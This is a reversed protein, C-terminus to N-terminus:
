ENFNDNFLDDCHYHHHHKRQIPKKDQEPTDASRMRSILELKLQQMDSAQKEAMARDFYLVGDVWTKLAKAYISLPNDSWLVLDAQKGTEVSGTYAEVKLMKAPNLTVLKWAEEESLGGYRIAKAAEQNLRRAMEADDSNFGTTVGMRTLLAGNYPIADNVEWKYAWWDSFSSANAGHAKLKDALKYGELIHTFTNVKFGMSDAVKMLMNIESQVYSHCTINRKGDLIEAIAELEIDTRFAPNKAKKDVSYKKAREFADYFVQEVGMRSQPFRSTYKEGWNSQKVNEGLAFKIHGPSEKFKMQQGTMGWRLKIVGNQGGIPNASGHLLHSTTVGGSLQRFINVDTADVVDGIRVEATNNQTGENVGGMIAIHSHEDIIGSTLHLNSGDIVETSADAIFEPEGSKRVRTIKGNEFLVDANAIIGNSTNSWITTNKVLTKKAKPLEKVGYATFPYVIKVSDAHYFPTKKKKQATDPAAKLAELYTLKWNITEGSPSIAYGEVTPWKTQYTKVNVTKKSPMNRTSVSVTTEVEPIGNCPYTGSFGAKKSDITFSWANRSNVKLQSTIKVSDRSFTMKGEADVTLELETLSSTQFKWKGKAQEPIGPKCEYLQGQVVHQEISFKDGSLSDSAVFFCAKKGKEISGVTSQLNLWRAPTETLAKVADRHSLGAQMAKKLAPYFEAQEKLGAATLVFEIKNRSLLAANAPAYAWHMLDSLETTLAEIGDTIKYPKPFSLPVILRAKSEKIADMRQYEDGSGAIIFNRDFEKAIEIAMLAQQWNRVEFIQPLNQLKNLRDLTVNYQEKFGYRNYWEADYYTQRLLAISGMLSSPYEVPSTGKRFSYMAASESKLILEQVPKSSTAVTLATGRVIGDAHHSQVIGFGANRWQEAQSELPTFLEAGKVDSRIAPNWATATGKKAAEKKVGYTTYLDIFSPYIFKGDCSHLIAEKPIDIGEGAEIILDNKVLLTIPKFEGSPLYVQANIFAHILNREDAVGNIPFTKQAKSSFILQLSFCLSLLFRM